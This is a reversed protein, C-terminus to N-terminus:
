KVANDAFWQKIEGEHEGAWGAEAVVLKADAARDAKANVGKVSPEFYSEDGKDILAQQTAPDLLFEVFAKAAEQHKSEKQIAAVRVSAPAGEAPWIIDVPEGANKLTYANSEQLAAAKIEGDTLAKAVNPNKPYVHVGNKMLSEFYTKGQDMGKSQFFWAVFPYAPAAVAPDAMGVAGKYKADLLDDWTKPASSADFAKTNYVIVSAAHAGTPFYTNNSPVVTKAFDTLGDLNSPTWNDLLQGNKGMQDITPMSDMWVVDWHPNGKEAEIRSAIEAGNGSVIELKYGTKEEFMPKVIDDFDNLYVVLPEDKSADAAAPSAAADASPETSAETTASANAAGNGAAATNAENNGNNGCASLAATAALVSVLMLGKWKYGNAM